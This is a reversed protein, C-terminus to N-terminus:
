SSNSILKSCGLVRLSLLSAEFGYDRIPLFAYAKQSERKPMGTQTVPFGLIIESSSKGQRKPEQPMNAAQHRKIIYDCSTKNDVLRILDKGIETRSFSSTWNPRFPKSISVNINRLRRLFVLLRSDLLRLEDLLGRRNYSESLQLYISTFGPKVPVPFPAWIPAIMGLQKSKDFKFFYDRSSIWVVDAAKFVSKFGIGKEGVYGKAKDAGKKTSQGVRCLAEVNRSSFGVENCDVRLCGNSYSFHVSPQVDSDYTNDDANQILELLFHTSSQYLQESLSYSKLLLFCLSGNSL